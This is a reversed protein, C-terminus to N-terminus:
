RPTFMPLPARPLPVFVFAADSHRSPTFRRFRFHREPPLRPPLLMLVTIRRRPPLTPCPM